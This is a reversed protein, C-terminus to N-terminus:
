DPALAGCLQLSCCHEQGANTLNPKSRWAASAFKLCLSPPFSPSNLQMGANVMLEHVVHTFTSYKVGIHKLMNSKQGESMLSEASGASEPAKLSGLQQATCAPVEWRYTGTQERHLYKGVFWTWLDFLAPHQCLEQCLWGDWWIINGKVLNM